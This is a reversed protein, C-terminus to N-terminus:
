FAWGVNIRLLPQIQKDSKMAGNSASAQYAVFTAGADLEIVFGLGFTHKYGIFPSIGLGDAVASVSGNTATANVYRVLAGLELGRDFSGLAYYQASAGLEFVSM